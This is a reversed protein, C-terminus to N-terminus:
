RLRERRSRMMARTVSEPRDTFNCLHMQMVPAWQLYAILRTGSDAPAGNSTNCHMYRLWREDGDQVEPPGKYVRVFRYLLMQDASYSDSALPEVRLLMVEAVVDAAAFAARQSTQGCSCADATPTPALLAVTGVIFVATLLKPARRVPDRQFSRDVM